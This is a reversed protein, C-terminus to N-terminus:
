PARRARAVLSRSPRLRSLTALDPHPVALLRARSALIGLIEARRGLLRAALPPRDGRLFLAHDIAGAGRALLGVEDLVDRGPLTGAILILVVHRAAQLLARRIADAEDKGVVVDCGAHDAVVEEAAGIVQGALFVQSVLGEVAAPVLASLTRALQDAPLGPRVLVIACIM